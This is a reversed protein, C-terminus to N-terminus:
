FDERQGIKDIGTNIETLKLEDIYVTSTKDNGGLILKLEKITLNEM